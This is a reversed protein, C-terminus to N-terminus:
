WDSKQSWTFSFHMRFGAEKFPALVGGDHTCDDFRFSAGRGLWTKIEPIGSHLATRLDQELAMALRRPHENEYRAVGTVVFDLAPQVSLDGGVGQRRPSGGETEVFITYKAQSEKAEDYHTTVFPDTNYGTAVSISELRSVVFELLRFPVFDDVKNPM